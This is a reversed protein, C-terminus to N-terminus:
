EALNIGSPRQEDRGLTGGTLGTLMIVSKVDEDQSCATFRCSMEGGHDGPLFSSLELENQPITNAGRASKHRKKWPLFSLKKLEQCIHSPYCPFSANTRRTIIPTFGTKYSWLDCNGQPSSRRRALGCQKQPDKKAAM